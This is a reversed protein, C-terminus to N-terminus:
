DTNHISLSKIKQFWSDIRNKISTENDKSSTDPTLAELLEDMKVQAEEILSELEEATTSAAVQIAQTNEKWHRRITESDPIRDAYSCIETMSQQEGEEGLNSLITNMDKMTDCADKVDMATVAIVTSIGVYPVSEVLVSGTNVSVNRLLRKSINQSVKKSVKGRQAQKNKLDDIETYPSRINPVIKSLSQALFSHYDPILLTLSHSILTFVFITPLLLRSICKPLFGIM